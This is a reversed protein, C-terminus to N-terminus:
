CCYHFLDVIVASYGPPFFSLFSSFFIFFSAIKEVCAFGEEVLCVSDYSGDIVFVVDRSCLMSIAFNHLFAGYKGTHHGRTMPDSLHSQTHLLQGNQGLYGARMELDTFLPNM